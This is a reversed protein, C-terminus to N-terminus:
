IMGLTESGAVLLPPALSVGAGVLVATGVIGAGVSISPAVRLLGARGPLDHARVAIPTSVPRCAGAAM